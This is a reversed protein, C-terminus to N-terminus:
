DSDGFLIPSIDHPDKKVENVFSVQDESVNYMQAFVKKADFYSKANCQVETKSGKINVSATWTKM